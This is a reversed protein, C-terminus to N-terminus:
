KKGIISNVLNILEARHHIMDLPVRKGKLEKPLPETCLMGESVIGFFETPPAIAFGRVEGRKIGSVNTVVTLGFKETGVRLVWLKDARPHKEVSGVEMAVVDLAYEARNEEGLGLRGRLGMLIWLCYRIEAVALRHAISEIRVGKPPLLLKALESAIAELDRIAESELLMGLPLFSYKIEMVRSRARKVLEMALGKNLPYPLNWVRVRKELRSVADEAILIRFDKSTDM